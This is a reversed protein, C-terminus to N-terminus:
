EAAQQNQYEVKSNMLEILTEFDLSALEGLYAQQSFQQDLRFYTKVTRQVDMSDLVLNAHIGALRLVKEREESSIVEDVMIELLRVCSELSGRCCM